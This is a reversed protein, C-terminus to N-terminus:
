AGIVWPSPPSTSRIMKVAIIDELMARGPKRRRAGESNSSQYQHAFSGPFSEGANQDLRTPRPHKAPHTAPGCFVMNCCSRSGNLMRRTPRAVLCMRSTSRANALVITFRIERINWVPKRYVDSSEMAVQAMGFQRLWEALVPLDETMAGFRRQHRHAPGRAVCCSVLSISSKDM